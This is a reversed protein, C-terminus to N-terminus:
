SLLMTSKDLTTEQCAQRMSQLGVRFVHAPSSRDTSMRWRVDRGNGVREVMLGDRRHLAGKVMGAVRRLALADVPLGKREMVILALEVASLPQEAARLGALVLRPLEQRGFWDCGKRSPKRPRILEPEADPCMIRIAADLHM